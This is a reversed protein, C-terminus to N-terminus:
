VSFQEYITFIEARKKVELKVFINHIHTKVTGVSLFLENAIEQNSKHELLLHLVEEERQTLHYNHCFNDLLPACNAAAEIKPQPLRPYDRICFYIVLACFLISSIDESVNRNYIKFLIDSYQDINFIVFTDEALILVSFISYLWANFALYKQRIPELPKKKFSFAYCGLYFVFLQNPLYYLWVKLASNESFPIGIMWLALVLLLAIQYKQLRAEGITTILWLCLFHDLLFIITKIIPASMFLHNYNDAFSNIFETMYIITNDLIFVIMLCALLLFIKQKNKLYLSITLSMVFSYLVILLVNYLFVFAM